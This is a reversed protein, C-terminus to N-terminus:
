STAATSFAEEMVEAGALLWRVEYPQLELRLIGASCLGHQEAVARARGVLKAEVAVFENAVNHLCLAAQEGDPSTRLLAFVQPDLTLVTQPGNPHFAATSRRAAMLRQLGASVQSRRSSPDALERELDPRELKQRNIRRKIGSEEVAERDGRSGFLSHFYIGPVGAMAMQIAHAVLFRAVQTELSEGGAPDSLADFYNINLEYPRQSGDPLSRYSVYGGHAQARAVLRQVEEAPLIGTLPFVGIGDHSALFNFFTVGSSPVTLL